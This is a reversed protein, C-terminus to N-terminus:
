DRGRPHGLHHMNFSKPTRRNNAAKSQRPTAPIRSSTSHRLPNHAKAPQHAETGEKMNNRRPMGLQDLATIASCELVALM